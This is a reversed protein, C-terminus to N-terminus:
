GKGYLARGIASVGQRVAGGAGYKASTSVKAVARSFFSTGHKQSMAITEKVIGDM